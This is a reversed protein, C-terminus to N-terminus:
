PRDTFVKQSLWTVLQEVFRDAQGFFSHSVGPLLLLEKPCAAAEYLRKGQEVPVTSDELGHVVLLPFTRLGAAARLLDFNKFDRIFEPTLGISQGEYSIQISEGAELRNYDSGLMGRFTAPLDAPCAMLCLGALDPDGAAFALSATAGMSRGLLAFPGQLSSRCYKMVAGIEALQESLCRHPTFSFRLTSINKELLAAALELSSGGIPSGCFGHCVILCPAAPSGASHLWAPLAHDGAPISLNQM